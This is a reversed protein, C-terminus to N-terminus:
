VADEKSKTGVVKAAFDSPGHRIINSFYTGM